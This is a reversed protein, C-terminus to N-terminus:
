LTVVRVTNEALLWAFLVLLFVNTGVIDCISQDRGFLEETLLYGAVRVLPFPAIQHDHLELILDPRLDLLKVGVKRTPNHHRSIRVSVLDSLKANTLM